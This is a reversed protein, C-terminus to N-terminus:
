IVVMKWLAQNRNWVKTDEGGWGGSTEYIISERGNM